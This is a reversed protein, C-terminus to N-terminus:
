IKGGFHQIYEEEGSYMGCAEGMEDENIKDCLHYKALLVFLMVKQSKYRPNILVEGM